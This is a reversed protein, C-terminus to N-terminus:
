KIRYGREIYKWVSPNNPDGRKNEGKWEYKNFSGDFIIEGFREQYEDSNQDVVNQITLKRNELDWYLIDFQIKYWNSFISVMEFRQNKSNYHIHWLYTRKTGDSSIANSKLEIYTSDLIYRGVRASEEWWNKEKNDERVKWEGILFDLDQISKQQALINNATALFLILLSNKFNIKM